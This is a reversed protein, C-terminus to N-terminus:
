PNWITQFREQRAKIIKPAEKKWLEAKGSFFTQETFIAVYNDPYGSKEKSLNLVFTPHTFQDYHNFVKRSATLDDLDIMVYWPHGNRTFFLLPVKGLGTENLAQQWWKFIECKDNKILQEMHWCEQWKCEVIFPFSTDPTVIDGAANWGDRFQKTGFGGSSPTRTFNSGWWQSFKKAAEREARNGKNKSKKSM